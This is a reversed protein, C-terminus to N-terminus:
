TWHLKIFQFLNDKPTEIPSDVTVYFSCHLATYAFSTFCALALFREGGRKVKSM